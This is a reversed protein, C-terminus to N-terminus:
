TAVVYSSISYRQTWFVMDRSLYMNILILHIYLQLAHASRSSLLYVVYM